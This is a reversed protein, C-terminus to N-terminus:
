GGFKMLIVLLAIIIWPLYNSITIIVQFQHWFMPLCRFVLMDALAPAMEFPFWDELWWKEPSMHTKLPCLYVM